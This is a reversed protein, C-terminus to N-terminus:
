SESIVRLRYTIPMSSSLLSKCIFLGEDSDTLNTLTLITSYALLTQNIQEVKQQITYRTATSTLSQTNLFLPRWRDRRQYRLHDSLNQYLWQVIQIKWWFDILIKNKISSSVIENVNDRYFTCSLSITSNEEGTIKISTLQRDDSYQGYVFAIWIFLFYFIVPQGLSNM